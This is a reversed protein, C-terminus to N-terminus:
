RQRAIFYERSANALVPSNQTDLINNGSKLDYPKAETLSVIRGGIFGEGGTVLSHKM